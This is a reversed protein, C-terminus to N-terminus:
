AGGAGDLTVPPGAVSLVYADAPLYQTAARQVDDATLGRIIGPYRQVYDLGLKHFEIDLLTSAIGGNTELQLPLVGTLFQVGNQLEEADVGESKIRAIEALIGDVARQVNKPNVGARVAWPGPGRGAEFSSYVYYALGQEERVNKGLRGYLGLRGLLLNTMQLAYYDPDARRIGPLGLVLDNQTKGALVKVARQITAPRAVGPVEATPREGPVTWDGFAQQVLDLAAPPEIDGVIVMIAGEPRVYTQYFSVMDQRGIRPVTELTGSVRRHYPHDPPYTMERFTREAVSRTDDEDERLGALTLNRLREIEELPFAPERVVERITDLLRGADEALSRGGVSLSQQGADVGVTMGREETERNLREFTKRKTGRRMTRATFGALGNLEPPEFVAGAECSLSINVAPTAHNPYVIVVMGNDLVVRTVTEPSIGRATTAPAVATDVRESESM